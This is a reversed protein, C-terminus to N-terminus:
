GTKKGLGTTEVDFGKPIRYEFVKKDIGKNVKPEVFKIEYIDEETGTAIIEAPLASNRDIWFDVTKYDDKYVSDPKVSLRLGVFGAKKGAKHELPEIRFQEKLRETKGFGIIPFNRGALELADVPSNPEAQQYRRVHKIQYDIHTLWVGDFLYEERYKQEQEDDQKLTEFNIRLWSRGDFRQFYMTGTKLTQSEFLPQVFLYEIRCKYSSLKATAQRLNRLVPEVNNVDAVAPSGSVGQGCGAAWCLNAAALLVFVRM